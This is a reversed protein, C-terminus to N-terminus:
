RGVVRRVNRARSGAPRSRGAALPMVGVTASVSCSSKRSPAASSARVATRLSSALARSAWPLKRRVLNITDTIRRATVVAAPPLQGACSNVFRVVRFLEAALEQPSDPPEPALANSVATATEGPSRGFLRNLVM